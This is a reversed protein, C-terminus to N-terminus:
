ATEVTYRHKQRTRIDTKHKNKCTKHAYTKLCSDPM